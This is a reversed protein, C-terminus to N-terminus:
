VWDAESDLPHISVQADFLWIEGTVILHQLWSLGTQALTHKEFKDVVQKSLQRFRKAATFSSPPPIPKWHLGAMTTIDRLIQECKGCPERHDGRYRYSGYRISTFHLYVIGAMAYVGSIPESSARHM